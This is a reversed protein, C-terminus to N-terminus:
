STQCHPFFEMGFLVEGGRPHTRFHVGNKQKQHQQKQRRCSHRAPEQQRLLAVDLNASTDTIIEYM